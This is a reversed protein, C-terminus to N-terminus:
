ENNEIINSRCNPCSDFEDFVYLGYAQAIYKFTARENEYNASENIYDLISDFNPIYSIKYTAEFGEDTLNTDFPGLQITGLPKKPTRIMIFNDDCYPVRKNWAEIAQEKSIYSPFCIDNVISCQHRINWQDLTPANAYQMYVHELKAEEGCFPCPKLENNM